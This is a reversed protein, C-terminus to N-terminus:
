HNKRLRWIIFGAIVLALLVWAYPLYWSTVTSYNHWVNKGRCYINLVKYKELLCPAKYTKSVIDPSIQQQQPIPVLITQASSEIAEKTANAASSETIAQAKEKIAQIQSDLSDPETAAKKCGIIFLFLLLILLNYKKM